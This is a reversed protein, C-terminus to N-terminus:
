SLPLLLFCVMGALRAEEVQQARANASVSIVPIHRVLTNEAELQRMNRVCTLGDMIPMEIDLLVLSLAKGTQEKGRWYKTQELFNLAEVGHSAAYVTFGKKSLQRCMVKQNVLNDEVVLLAHESAVFRRKARLPLSIDPSAQTLSPADESARQVRSHGEREPSASSIKEPQWASVYFAFTTGKEDGM